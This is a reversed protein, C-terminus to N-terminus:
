SLHKWSDSIPDTFFLTELGESVQSLFDLWKLFLSLSSSKLSISQGGESYSVQFSSIPETLRSGSPKVQSTMEFGWSCCKVHSSYRQKSASPLVVFSRSYCPPSFGALWSLSVSCHGPASFSRPSSCLLALFDWEGATNGGTAWVIVPSHSDFPRTGLLFPSFASSLVQLDAPHLFCSKLFPLQDSTCPVRAWGKPRFKSGPSPGELPQAFVMGARSCVATCLCYFCQPSPMGRSSYRASKGHMLCENWGGWFGTLFTIIIGIKWIFFCFEAFNFLKGLKFM